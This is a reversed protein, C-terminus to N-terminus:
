GKYYVIRECKDLKKSLIVSLFYLKRFQIETELMRDAESSVIELSFEIKERVFWKWNTNYLMRNFYSLRYNSVKVFIQHFLEM